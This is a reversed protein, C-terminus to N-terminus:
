RMNSTFSWSNLTGSKTFLIALAFAEEGTSCAQVWIRIPNYAAKNNVIKHLITEKLFDIIDSDRFFCTVNILLDNFLLYKKIMNKKNQEKM